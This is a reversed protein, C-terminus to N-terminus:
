GDKFSSQTQYFRGLILCVVGLISCLIAVVWLSSLAALVDCILLFTGLSYLLVVIPM